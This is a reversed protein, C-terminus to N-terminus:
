VFKTGNCRPCIFIDEDIYNKCKVCQKELKTAYFQKDGVNLPESNRNFSHKSNNDPLLLIVLLSGLLPIFLGLLFALFGSYGKSVATSITIVMIVIQSSILLWILLSIREELCYILFAIIVAVLVTVGIGEKM